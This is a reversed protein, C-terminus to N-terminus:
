CPSSWLPERMGRQGSHRDARTVMVKPRHGIAKQVLQLARQTWSPLWCRVISWIWSGESMAWPREWGAVWGSEWASAGRLPWSSGPPEGHHDVVLRPPKAAVALLWGRDGVDVAGFVLAVGRALDVAPFILAPVVAGASGAPKSRARRCAKIAKTDPPTM